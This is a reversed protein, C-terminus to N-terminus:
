AGWFVYHRLVHECSWINSLNTVPIWMSPPRVGGGEGEGAAAAGGGLLQEDQKRLQGRHWRKEEGHCHGHGVKVGKVEAGGDIAQGSM